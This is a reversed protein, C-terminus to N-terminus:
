AFVNSGLEDEDPGATADFAPMDSDFEERPATNSSVTAPPQIPNFPASNPFNQQAPKAPQLATNNNNETQEANFDENMEETSTHFKKNAQQAASDAASNEGLGITNESPLPQQQAAPNVALPSASRGRKAGRSQLSPSYVTDCSNNSGSSKVEKMHEFSQLNIAPHPRSTEVSINNVVTQNGEMLAPEWLSGQAKQRGTSAAFIATRRVNVTSEKGRQLLGMIRVAERAKERVSDHPDNLAAALFKQAYVALPPIYEGGPASIPSFLSACLASLFAARYEVGLQALLLGHLSYLNLGISVLARDIQIRLTSSFSFGCSDLAAALFKFAAVAATSHAQNLMDLGGSEYFDVIYSAKDIAKESESKKKSSGSKNHKAAAANHLALQTLNTSNKVCTKYLQLPRTIDSLVSLTILSPLLSNQKSANSHIGLERAFISAVAYSEGLLQVNQYGNAEADFVCRRFAQLIISQIRSLYGLLNLKFQQILLGVFQITRLQISPLFLLIHTNSIAQGTYQNIEKPAVEHRLINEVLDILASLNLTVSQHFQSPNLTTPSLLESLMSLVANFQASVAQARPFSAPPLSPLQLPIDAKNRSRQNPNIESFLDNLSALVKNIYLYYPDSQMVAAHSLPAAQGGDENNATNALAQAQTAAQQKKTQNSASNQLLLSLIQCQLQVHAQTQNNNSILQMILKEISSYHPRLSSRFLNVLGHLACLLRHSADAPASIDTFNVSSLLEILIPILKNAGESIAERKTDTFVSCRGFLSLLCEVSLVCINSVCKNSKFENILKFLVRLDSSFRSKLYAHSYNVVTRQLLTIGVIIWDVNTSSDSLLSDIRELWKAFISSYIQQPSKKDNPNLNYPQIPLLLAQQKILTSITDQQQIFIQHSLQVISHLTHTATELNTM